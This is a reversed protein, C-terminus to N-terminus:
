DDESFDGGLWERDVRKAYDRAAAEAQQKLIARRESLPLRMMARRDLATRALQTVGAAVYPTAEEMSVLGESVARLASAEFWTSREPPSDGPEQSRWGSANIDMCWRRYTSDNIISLGHLRYLIAQVSMGWRRKLLFLENPSVHSRREGVEEYVASAPFLLAAGFRHAAKEEDFGQEVSQVLHGLEHARTLRQREGSADPATAIAASRVVGETDHALVALGDFRRNSKVEILHVGHEELADTLGGIPDSGLGWEARVHEAAREADDFGGVPISRPRVKLEPARGLRNQLGLRRELELSVLSEIREREKKPTSALTRYAVPEFQMAPERIVDAAKVGLAQALAVLVTPRPQARDHEYKSLAQKSVVGGMLGVLGDLSLGRAQRLQRIRKGASM